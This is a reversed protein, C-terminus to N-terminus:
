AALEMQVANIHKVLAACILGFDCEHFLKAAKV